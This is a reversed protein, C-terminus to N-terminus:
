ELVRIQKWKLELHFKNPDAKKFSVQWFGYYFRYASIDTKKWFFYTVREWKKIALYMGIYEGRM